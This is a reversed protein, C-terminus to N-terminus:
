VPDISKLITGTDSDITIVTCMYLVTSFPSECITGPARVTLLIIHSLYYNKNATRAGPVIQSLGKFFHEGSQVLHM